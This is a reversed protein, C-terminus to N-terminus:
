RSGHCIRCRVKMIQMQKRLVKMQYGCTKCEIVKFNGENPNYATRPM